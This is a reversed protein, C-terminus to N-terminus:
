NLEVKMELTRRLEENSFHMSKSPFPSAETTFQPMMAMKRNATSHGKFLRHSLKPYAKTNQLGDNYCDSSVVEISQSRKEERGETAAMEKKKMQYLKVTTPAEGWLMEKMLGDCYTRLGASDKM